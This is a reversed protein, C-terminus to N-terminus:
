PCGKYLKIKRPTQPSQCIGSLIRLFTQGDMPDRPFFVSENVGRVLATAPEITAKRYFVYSPRNVFDHVGAALRCTSDCLDNTWSNIPVLLHRGEACADTCVVFLHKKDQDHTPGSPILLTGKKLVQYAVTV